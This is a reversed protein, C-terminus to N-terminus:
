SVLRTYNAAGFVVPVARHNLGHLLKETVYDESFSNEFSFYFYYDKEIIKFCENMKDRSCKFPGCSGYVDVSLNFTKLESQVNKVFKERGSKSYCNSVFWAAAKSKSKLQEKLEESVPDMDELKIWHMIKNPGIIKDKIDRVVIYGWRAESELRYTWTWNFFGNLNENCIPYYDSSEISAFVYKQHPSRKQPLNSYPIRVVAPGCFAVVDFDRIDNLYNRDGTVYCNTYPCKRQIFGDQGHGMYVFPVAKPSTWLLIYKLEKNVSKVFKNLMLEQNNALNVKTKVSRFDSISLVIFMLLTILSFWFIIKIYVLNRM